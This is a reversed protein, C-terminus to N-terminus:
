SNKSKLFLWGSILFLTAFFINIAFVGLVGADGWQTEKSIALAIAPIVALTIAIGFQTVAMGKPRLRSAILGILGIIYITGYLMNIPNDESGIIGVAGNMWGIILAGALGISFAIKYTRGYEKFLNM